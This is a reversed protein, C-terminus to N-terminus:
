CVKGWCDSHDRRVTNFTLIILAQLNEVSFQEMGALLVAKKCHAYWSSTAISRECFEPVYRSCSVSMAVLIVEVKSSNSQSALKRRFNAENLVPIWPHVCAFYANIVLDMMERDPLLTSIESDCYCYLHQTSIPVNCFRERPSSGNALKSLKSNPLNESADTLLRKLGAARSTLDEDNRDSTAITPNNVNQPILNSELLPQLLLNQGLFM